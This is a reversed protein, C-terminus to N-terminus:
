AAKAAPVETLPAEVLTVTADREAPAMVWAILLVAFAILAAIVM